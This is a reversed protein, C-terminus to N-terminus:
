AVNKLRYGTTHTERFLHQEINCPLRKSDRKPEEPKKDYYVDDPRIGDLTMHPRWINYWYQFEKCLMTLHDFRKIIAVRRLWEYKLTKIVRETVSISGHKGIAGFRPKVNWNDLLEAFADGTFVSAQDSIIHKPAGHEQIASELASVIWGANPGELPTVSMIKRSFHDIVVCIRISWLGWSLVTTTDISWVHNLYWAPISRAETKDQAERPIEFSAPTNRPKPRQLINRVTFASIFINLLALQNAIRIRGWNINSRTIQWILVAIELPTRNAPISIQQQDEIKHLWRYLTSRAIGFYETVKRRPIQYTEMQWLIFLRERLTYRPKKQQKKIRKQLISVQMKLQYVKDKLFLIEKNKTDADMAALRKLSRKRVRASFRAAM